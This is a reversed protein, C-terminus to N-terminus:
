RTGARPRGVSEIHSLVLRNSVARLPTSYCRQRDKGLASAGRIRECAAHNNITQKVQIPPVARALSGWGDFALSPLCIGLRLNVSSRPLDQARWSRLSRLATTITNM